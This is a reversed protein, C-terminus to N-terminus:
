ESVYTPAFEELHVVPDSQQQKGFNFIGSKRDSCENRGGGGGGGGGWGGGGRPRFRTLPTWVM